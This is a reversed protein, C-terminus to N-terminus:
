MVRCENNPITLSVSHDWFDFFTSCSHYHYVLWNARVKLSRFVGGTIFPTACLWHGLVLNPLKPVYCIRLDLFGTWYSKQVSDLNLSIFYSIQEWSGSGM